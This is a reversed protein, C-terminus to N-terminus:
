ADRRGSGKECTRLKLAPGDVLHQSLGRIRVSKEHRDSLHDTSNGSERSTKEFRSNSVAVGGAM